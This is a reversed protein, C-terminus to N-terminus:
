SRKIKYCTINSGSVLTGNLYLRFYKLDAQDITTNKGTSVWWNNEGQIMAQAALFTEGASSRVLYIRCYGSVGAQSGLTGSTAFYWETSGSAASSTLSGADNNTLCLDYTADSLVAGEATDGVRINVDKSADTGFSFTCFMESYDTFNVADAFTFQTFDAGTSTQTAIFEMTSGGAATAAWEPATAAGNVTLTDTANGLNLIQLATGNSYCIDGAAMGAQTVNSFNLAGGDQVISSSHTHAKTVNAGGGSFGM